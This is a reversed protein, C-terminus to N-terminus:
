NFVSIFIKCLLLILKFLWYAYIPTDKIRVVLCGIGHILALVPFEAVNRRPELTALVPNRDTGHMERQREGGGGWNAADWGEPSTVALLPVFCWWLLATEYPRSVAALVRVLKGGQARGGAGGGKVSPSLQARREFGRIRRRNPQYLPSPPRRRDRRPPLPRPRAHPFKM